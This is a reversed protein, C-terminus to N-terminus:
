NLPGTARELGRLPAERVWWLLRGRTWWQASAPDYDVHAAPASIVTLGERRCALEARARHAPHAIVVASRLGRRRCVAAAGAAVARTPTRLPAAIPAIREVDRDLGPVAQFVDAEALLPVGPATRTAVAALQENSVGPERLAGRRRFGFAFAIVAEPERGLRVHDRAESARM